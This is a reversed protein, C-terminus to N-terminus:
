SASHILLRATGDSNKSLTCGVFTVTIQSMSYIVHLKHNKMVMKHQLDYWIVEM